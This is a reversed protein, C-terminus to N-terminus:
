LVENKFTDDLIEINSGITKETTYKGKRYLVCFVETNTRRILTKLNKSKDTHYKIWGNNDTDAVFPFKSTEDYYITVIPFKRIIGNEQKYDKQSLKIIPKM